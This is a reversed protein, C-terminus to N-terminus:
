AIRVIAAEELADYAPPAATGARSDPGSAPTGGPHSASSGDHFLGAEPRGFLVACAARFRASPAQVGSKVARVYAHSFDTQRALWAM